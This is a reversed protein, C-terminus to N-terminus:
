FRVSEEALDLWQPLIKALYEVTNTDLQIYQDGITIQLCTGREQGGAFRTLSMIVDEYKPTMSARSEEDIIEKKGSIYGINTSM